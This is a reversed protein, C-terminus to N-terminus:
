QSLVRAYELVNSDNVSFFNSWRISIQTASPLIVINPTLPILTKM